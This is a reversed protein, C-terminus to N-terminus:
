AARRVILFNRFPEHAEVRRVHEAWTDPAREEHALEWRRKGLYGVRDFGWAPGFGPSLLTSRSTEDQGGSWDVPLATLSRFREESARLREAAERRETSLAGLLLTTLAVSGLLAHIAVLTALEREPAFPGMGLWAGTICLAALAVNFTAVERMPLR